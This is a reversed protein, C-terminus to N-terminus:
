STGLSELIGLDLKLYIGLNLSIPTEPYQLRTKDLSSAPHQAALFLAHGRYNTVVIYIYLIYMIYMIYM